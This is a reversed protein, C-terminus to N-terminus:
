QNISKNFSPNLISPAEFGGGRPPNTPNICFTTSQLCRHAKPHVEDEGREGEEGRGRETRGWGTAREGEVCCM